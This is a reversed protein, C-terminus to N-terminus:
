PTIVEFSAGAAKLKEIATKSFAHAKIRVPRKIDGDGLIKLGNKIDKLIGKEKLVDPTIEELGLREIDKLNLVAYERKFPANTFGRKPLRRQLPMQGGEFGPGKAGGSRAKQGKHGKTSTKGHSSGIGRGIRKPRRKSGEAPRLDEIKM